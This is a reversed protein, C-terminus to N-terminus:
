SFSVGSVPACVNRSPTMFQALRKYRRHRKRTLVHMERGSESKVDGTPREAAAGKRKLDAAAHKRVKEDAGRATTPNDFLLKWSRTGARGEASQWDLRVWHDARERRWGEMWGSKTSGNEKVCGEQEPSANSINNLFLRGVTLQLDNAAPYTPENAEWLTQLNNFAIFIKNQPSNPQATPTYILM